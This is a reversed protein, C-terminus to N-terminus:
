KKVLVLKGSADRVWKRGKLESKPVDAAVYQM